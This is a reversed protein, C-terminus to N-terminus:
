TLVITTLLLIKIRLEKLWTLSQVNLKHHDQLSKSTHLSMSRVRHTCYIVYHWEFTM